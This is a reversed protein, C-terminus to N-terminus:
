GMGKSRWPVHNEVFFGTDEVNCVGTCVPHNPDVGIVGCEGCCVNHIRWGSGFRQFFIGADVAYFPTNQISTKITRRSNSEFTILEEHRQIAITLNNGIIQAHVSLASDLSAGNLRCRAGDHPNFDTRIAVQIIDIVSLIFNDSNVRVGISVAITDDVDVVITWKHGVGILEIM